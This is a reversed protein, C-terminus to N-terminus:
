DPTQQDPLIGNERVSDGAAILIRLKEPRSRIAAENKELLRVIM